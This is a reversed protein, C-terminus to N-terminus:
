IALLCWHQQISDLFYLLDIVTAAELYEMEKRISLKLGNMTIQSAKSDSEVSNGIILMHWFDLM